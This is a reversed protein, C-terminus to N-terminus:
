KRRLKIKRKIPTDSTEETKSDEETSRKIKIRVVKQAPPQTESRDVKEPALLAREDVVIGRKSDVIGKPEAYERVWRAVIEDEPFPAVNEALYNKFQLMEGIRIVLLDLSHWAGLAKANVCIRGQLKIDAHSRINPHWVPTKMYCRPEADAGPYGPPFSIEAIHEEGYIPSQDDEIGVMSKVKYQILYAEPPNNGSRRAVKYDILPSRQCLAHLRMHEAALRKYRPEKIKKLDYHIM